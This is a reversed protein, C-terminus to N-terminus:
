AWTIERATRDRTASVRTAVLRASGPVIAARRRPQYPTWGSPVTASRRTAARDPAIPTMALCALKRETQNRFLRRPDSARAAATRTASTDPTWCPNQTTSPVRDTSRVFAAEVSDVASRASPPVTIPKTTPARSSSPM